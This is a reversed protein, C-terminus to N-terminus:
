EQLKSSQGCCQVTPLNVFGIHSAFHASPTALGNAPEAVVKFPWNLMCKLTMSPRDFNIRVSHCVHFSTVQALRATSGEVECWKRGLMASKVCCAKEYLTMLLLTFSRRVQWKM